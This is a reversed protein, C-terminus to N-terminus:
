KKGNTRCALRDFLVPFPQNYISTGGKGSISTICSLWNKKKRWRRGVNRNGKRKWDEAPPEQTSMSKQQAESRLVSIERKMYRPLLVTDNLLCRSSKELRRPKKSTLRIRSTFRWLSGCAEIALQQLPRPCKGAKAKGTLSAEARVASSNKKKTHTNIDYARQHQHAACGQGRREAEERSWASVIERWWESRKRQVARQTRKRNAITTARQKYFEDGSRKGCQQWSKRPARVERWAECRVPNLM